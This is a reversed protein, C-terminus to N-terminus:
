EPELKSNYRTFISIKMAVRSHMGYVLQLTCCTTPSTRAREPWVDLSIIKAKKAWIITQPLVQLSALTRKVNQKKRERPLVTRGSGM